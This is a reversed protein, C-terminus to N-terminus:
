YVLATEKFTSPLSLHDPTIYDARVSKEISHQYSHRALLEPM